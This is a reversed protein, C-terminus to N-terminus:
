TCAICSDPVPIEVGDETFACINPLRTKPVITKDEDGDEVNKPKVVVDLCKRDEESCTYYAREPCDGKILYANDVCALCTNKYQRVKEHSVGCTPNYKTMCERNWIQDNAECQQLFIYSAIPITEKSKCAKCPNEYVRWGGM